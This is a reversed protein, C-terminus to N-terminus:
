SHDSQHNRGDEPDIESHIGSAFAWSCEPCRDDRKNKARTRKQESCKNICLGPRIPKHEHPQCNRYYVNPEVSYDTVQDSPKQPPRVSKGPVEFRPSPLGPTKKKLQQDWRKPRASRPAASATKSQRHTGSGRPALRRDASQNGM